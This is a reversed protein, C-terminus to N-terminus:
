PTLGLVASAIIKDFRDDTRKVRNLWHKREDPSLVSASWIIARKDWNSNNQWTERYTRVWDVYKASKALLAYPRQGLNKQANECILGIESGLEDSFDTILLNTIWLQVYPLGGYDSTRLFQILDQGLKKKSKAQVTKSFYICVDRIVPILKDLHDIVKIHLRNTRLSASRRLLYRALGLQLKDENVAVEFLDTLNDIVFQRDEELDLEIGDEVSYQMHYLYEILESIKETKSKEEMKQPNLLYNDRFQETPVIRTKGTALVLRHSTNLYESLHHMAEIAERRSGCFIRFDDVYRTFKYGKRLLFTDVDNLCAEALLISASPGVPLGRSQRGTLEMLFNEINQARKPDINASELANRVRHHSIQNYFDAIDAVLVFTNNPDSSLVESTDHFDDWGNDNRFLQGDASLELRYSCAIKESSAVRSDELQQAAEYIMGTYILTDFPDLQNTVRFGGSSKPVLFRRLANCNYDALDIECLEDRVAQWGHKIAVYEFPVPFIDTDGFKEIHTLAWDLSVHQLKDM